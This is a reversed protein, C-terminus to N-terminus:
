EVWMIIMQGSGGAGGNGSNKTTAGGGAGGGGGAGTNVAADGGAGGAANNVGSGGTGGIGEGSMGSGGNGGTTTNVPGSGKAANKGIYGCYGSTSENANSLSGGGASAGASWMDAGGSAGTDGLISIVCFLSSREPSSSSIIVPVGYWTFLGGFTTASGATGATNATTSGAGGAGITITYATNPVVTLVTMQLHNGGGGAQGDGSAGATGNSGRAGGAGGGMAYVLVQTVGAPATWSSNSNFVKKTM